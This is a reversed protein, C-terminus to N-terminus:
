ATQLSGRVFSAPWRGTDKWYDFYGLAEAFGTFRPDARLPATAPTFLWQTSRWRQDAQVTSASRTAIPDPAREGRNLVFGRAVEYAEDIEGLGSLQMIANAANGPSAGVAQLAAERARATDTASNSQMARLTSQWAALGDDGLQAALQEDELLRQAADIRGTFAFILLRTYRMLHHDPWVSVARQILRAAADEEGFIWHQLARRQQFVPAFPAEDAARFNLTRAESCRGIGQLFSALHLSVDICDPHDALVDRLGNEYAAWGSLGEGLVIRTIRAHPQGPDLSLARASTELAQRNADIRDAPLLMEARGMVSISLLGLIDANDPALALAREYLDIAEGLSEMTQTLRAQEGRRLLDAVRAEADDRSLLWAGTGLLAAAGAGIAIASRRSFVGAVGAVDAGESEGPSGVLRYGVRPVTEVTCDCGAAALARRLEAVARNIADDGVIRGEWCTELLEERGLVRGRAEHLAMLVQMVRPEVSTEGGPGSILRASPRARCNGLAFDKGDALSNRRYSSRLVDM